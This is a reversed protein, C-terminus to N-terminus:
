LINKSESEKKLKQLLNNLVKNFERYKNFLYADDYEVLKCKMRPNKARYTIYPDFIDLTERWIKIEGGKDDILDNWDKSPDYLNKVDKTIKIVIAKERVEYTFTDGPLLFEFEKESIVNKTKGDTKEDYVIALAFKVKTENLFKITAHYNINVNYGSPYIANPTRMKYTNKAYCDIANGSLDKSNENKKKVAKSKEKENYNEDTYVYKWRSKEITKVWYTTEIFNKKFYITLEEEDSYAIDIWSLKPTDSSAYISSSMDKWDGNNVWTRKTEQCTYIEESKGNSFFNFKGYIVGCNDFYTESKFNVEKVIKLNNIVNESSNANSCILVLFIFLIKKM